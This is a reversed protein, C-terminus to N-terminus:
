RALTLIEAGNETVVISHEFHASLSGDCSVVTWEDELVVVGGGGMNVMPEIAITMGPSLRVGRGATGYNPVEPSEHLDRGVGHGVFEKVVGYGFSEAYEQVASSVDGIRGDARAAAIGKYLCAKTVELLKAAQPSICGAGITAANDGHFGQYCAGVDISVIDGEEIIRPGPIGHIVQENISICAAAPFGGYGLFSPTAGEALIVKHIMRNVAETTTGPKVAELGAELALASIRGAKRMMELERNNKIIIM